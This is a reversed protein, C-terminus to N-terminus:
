TRHFNQGIKTQPEKESECASLRSFNIQSYFKLIFRHARFNNLYQAFGTEIRSGFIKIFFESHQTKYGFFYYINTSFHFFQSKFEGFEEIRIEDMNNIINM